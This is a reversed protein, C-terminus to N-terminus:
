NFHPELIRNKLEAFPQTLPKEPLYETVWPAHYGLERLLKRLVYPASLRKLLVDSALDRKWISYPDDDGIVASDYTTLDNVMVNRFVKHNIHEFKFNGANSQALMMSAYAVTYMRILQNESYVTGIFDAFDHIDDSSNTYVFRDLLELLSCIEVYTQPADTRLIANLAEVHEQVQQIFVKYLTFAGEPLHGGNANTYEKTTYLFAIYEHLTRFTRSVATAIDQPHSAEATKSFSQSLDRGYWDSMNGTQLWVLLFHLMRQVNSPTKCGNTVFHHFPNNGYCINDFTRSGQSSHPHGMHRESGSDVSYNLEKRHDSTEYLSDLFTDMGQHLPSVNKFTYSGRSGPVGKTLETYFDFGSLSVYITADHPEAAMPSKSYVMHIPMNRTHLRIKRQTYEIAQLFPFKANLSNIADLTVAQNTQGRSKGMLEIIQMVKHQAELLQEQLREKSMVKDMGFYDTNLSNLHESTIVNM